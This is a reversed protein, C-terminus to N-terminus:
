AGMMGFGSILAMVASGLAVLIGLIVVPAVALYGERVSINRVSALGHGWIYGSWLTTLVGVFSVAAGFVTSIWPGMGTSVLAVAVLMFVFSVAVTLVRPVLGWGTVALVQDFDGEGDFIATLLYFIGAFLGWWLFPGIIRGIASIVFGVGGMLMMQRSSQMRGSMMQSMVVSGVLSTLLGIVVIGGVVAAPGKLGLRDRDAFFQEPDLLLTRIAVM